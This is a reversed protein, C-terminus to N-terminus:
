LLGWFDAVIVKGKLGKITDGMGAYKVVKVTVAAADPKDKDAQGTSPSTAVVLMLASLLGPCLCWRIVPM